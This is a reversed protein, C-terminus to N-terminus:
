KCKNMASVKFYPNVFDSAKFCCTDTMLRLNNVESNFTESVKNMTADSLRHCGVLVIM